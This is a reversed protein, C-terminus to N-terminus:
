RTALRAATPPTDVIDSNRRIRAARERRERAGAADGTAELVRAERTLAEALDGHREPDVVADYFGIARRLSVLANPLDGQGLQASGVLHWASAALPSPQLGREPLAELARQARETVLSWDGRASAIGAGVLLDAAMASERSRVKPTAIAEDWVASAEDVRGVRALTLARQVAVTRGSPAAEPGGDRLERLAADLTALADATRGLVRLAAVRNAMLAVRAGAPDGGPPVASLTADVVALAERGHGFALLADVEQNVLHPLLYAPRASAPRREVVARSAHVLDLGERVRGRRVLFMGLEAQRRAAQVSDAGNMAVTIRLSERLDREADAFRGLEAKVLAMQEIIPVRLYSVGRPLRAAAELGEAFAQLAEPYRELASAAAGALYLAYVLRTSPPGDRLLAAADAAAAHSKASDRSAWYGAATLDVATRAGIGARPNAQLLRQARELNALGVATRGHLMQVDALRALGDIHETSGTGFARELAGARVEYLRAAEELLAMGEYMSALTELVRAQVDPADALQTAVRAAGEDLLQRATRERARVPDAQNNDNALFVGALFDQVAQATRAETRAIRAQWLAVTTGGILAVVVVGAAAVQLRYRRLFKGARYAFADRQASVPQNGLHRVIDQALADVTPYRDTPRKRLAKGLIADLDGRLRRRTARDPAADSALRADAGAIAEELEAATGRRLRYPKAGTLVEYAVVGLSYVDSATGVPDGAIQEPSAYDPTLARGTLRTLETAEPADSELLKAVGFDLLRVAGARDVLINSPKLDRHVVLRAHAFSVAAAVQLLLRLRADVSLARERVHVDIPRGDVYELALYPRGRDDVGADYLRAINPHELSALIDRERAMRAALGRNWALHPLKVAVQRKMGGDAREALWVAGMGGVGLARIVRYPGIADGPGLTDQSTAAPLGAGLRPLTELFDGTEVLGAHRLLDALPGRLRAREGSLSALWADRASTPVGLAEDLLPSLVAWQDPSLSPLAM